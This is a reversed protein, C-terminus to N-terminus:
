IPERYRRLWVAAGFFGLAFVLGLWMGPSALFMSPELQTTGPDFPIHKSRLFTADQQGFSFAEHMWGFLRYSLLSFLYSTGFVFKEILCLVFPALVGWLFTSRRAWGSVLMLWGYIPAYWLTMVVLGYLLEKTIHLWPLRTWLAAASAGHAQLAICDLLLKAAQVTIVTALTLLPLVLLPIMAKAVVTVLDSVPLSKWFLISRDRREGHLADLCYFVAVMLGTIMLPIATFGFSAALLVSQQMDSHAALGEIFVPFTRLETLVVLLELAAVALLAMYISRNEWLERRLSWYLPRVPRLAAVKDAPANM